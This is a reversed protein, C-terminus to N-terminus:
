ACVEPLNKCALYCCCLLQPAGAALPHWACAECVKSASRGGGADPAWGPTAVTSSLCHVTSCVNMVHTTHSAWQLFRLQRPIDQQPIGLRCLKHSRGKPCGLEWVCAAQCTRSLVQSTTDKLLNNCPLWMLWSTQRLGPRSHRGWTKSCRCLDTQPVNM